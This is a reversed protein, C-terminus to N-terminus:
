GTLNCLHQHYFVSVLLRTLSTALPSSYSPETEVWLQMASGPMLSSISRENARCSFISM